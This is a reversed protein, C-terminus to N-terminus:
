APSSLRESIRGALPSIPRIPPPCMSSWIPAAKPILDCCAGAIPPPSGIFGDEDVAAGDPRGGIESLDAFLQPPELPMGDSDLEITWVSALTPHSDSVYLRKGDPSFGLGNLTRFGDRVVRVQGKDICFLRGLHARHPEISGCWFRGAPDAIGDNMRTGPAATFPSHLLEQNLRDGDLSLYEFGRSTGAIFGGDTPAISALAGDLVWRKLSADQPDFRLLGGAEIDCYWLADEHWLPSEAVTVAPIDLPQATFERM